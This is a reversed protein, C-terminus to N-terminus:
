KDRDSFSEMVITEIESYVTSHCFKPSVPFAYFHFFNLVFHFVCFLRYGASIQVQLCKCEEFVNCLIEPVTFIVIISFLLIQNKNANRLFM